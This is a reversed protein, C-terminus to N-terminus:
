PSSMASASKKPDTEIKRRLRVIQVDIAFLPRFRGSGAGSSM